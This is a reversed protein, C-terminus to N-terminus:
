EESEYGSGGPAYDYDEGGGGGGGGSGGYHEESDSDYYNEQTEFPYPFLNMGATAFGESNEKLDKM